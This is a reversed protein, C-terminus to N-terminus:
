DSHIQRKFNLVTFPYIRNMISIIVKKERTNERGAMRVKQFINGHGRWQKSRGILLFTRYPWRWCTLLPIKACNFALHHRHICSYWCLKCSSLVQSNIQFTIIAILLSPLWEPLNSEGLGLTLHAPGGSSVPFPGLLQYTLM